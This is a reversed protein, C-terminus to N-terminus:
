PEKGHEIFMIRAINVWNMSECWIEKVKMKMDDKWGQDVL